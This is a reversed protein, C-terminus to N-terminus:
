LLGAAKALGYALAALGTPGLWKLMSLGGELRDIRGTVLDVKADIAMLRDDLKTELRSVIDYVDRVGVVNSSPGDGNM